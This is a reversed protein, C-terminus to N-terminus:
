GAENILKNNDSLKSVQNFISKFLDTRECLKKVRELVPISSKVCFSQCPPPTYTPEPDHGLTGFQSM